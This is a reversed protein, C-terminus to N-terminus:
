PSLRTVTWGSGSRTYRFRDHLRNPQGIWFEFADPLVRYGGWWPPCPIETGEPYQRELEAVRAELPERGPIVASQRSAWAGLRSGRPRTRFYAESEERTVKEVRGEVRVQRELPAWFFCLAARPNAALEVGKRSEYNTFFVLGRDDIEKLLVVRAAPAGDPTATALTMANPDKIKAEVADAFWRRFQVFPNPDLSM